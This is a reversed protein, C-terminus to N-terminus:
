CRCFLLTPNNNNTSEGNDYKGIVAARMKMLVVYIAGVRIIELGTKRPTVIPLTAALQPAVCTVWTVSLRMLTTSTFVSMLIMM